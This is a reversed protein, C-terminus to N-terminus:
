PINDASLGRAKGFPCLIRHEIVVDDGGVDLDDGDGTFRTPVYGRRHEAPFSFNQGVGGAGDWAGLPYIEVPQRPLLHQNFQILGSQGLQTDADGLHAGNQVSRVRACGGAFKGPSTRGNGHFQGTFEGRHLRYPFQLDPRQRITPYQSQLIDCADGFSLLGGGGAVGQGIAPARDEHAHFHIKAVLDVAVAGTEILKQLAVM